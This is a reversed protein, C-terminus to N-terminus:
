DLWKPDKMLAQIYFFAMLSLLIWSLATVITSVWGSRVFNRM